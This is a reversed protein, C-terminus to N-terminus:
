PSPTPQMDPDPHESTTLPEWRQGTWLHWTGHSGPHSLALNEAVRERHRSTSPLPIVAHDITYGHDILRALTSERTPFGVVARTLDHEEILLNMLDEASVPADGQRCRKALDHLHQPGFRQPSHPVFETPGGRGHNEFTGIHSGSLQVAAVFAIGHAMELQRLATVIPAPDPVVLGTHILTPM